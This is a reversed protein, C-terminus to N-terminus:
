IEQFQSPKVTGPHCQTARCFLSSIGLSLSLTLLSLLKNHISLALALSLVFLLRGLKKEKRCQKEVKEKKEKKKQVSV